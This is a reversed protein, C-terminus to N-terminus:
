ARASLKRFSFYKMALFNYVTCIAIAILHALSEMQKPTIFAVHLMFYLGSLARVIAAALVLCGLTMVLFKVVQPAARQDTARFTIMRNLIFSLITGLVFGLVVSVVYSTFPRFLFRGFFNVAACIGGSILFVVFQRSVFDRRIKTTIIAVSSL